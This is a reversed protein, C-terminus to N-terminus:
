TPSKQEREGTHAESRAKTIETFLTPTWKRNSGNAFHKDRQDRQAKDVSGIVEEVELFRLLRAPTRAHEAQRAERRQAEGFKGSCSGKYQSTQLVSKRAPSRGTPESRESKRDSNSPALKVWASIPMIPPLPNYEM